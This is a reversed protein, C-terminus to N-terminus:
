KAKERRKGLTYTPPHLISCRCFSTASTAPRATRSRRSAGPAPASRGCIAAKSKCTNTAARSHGRAIAKVHAHRLRVAQVHVTSAFLPAADRRTWPAAEISLVGSGIAGEGEPEACEEEEGRRPAPIVVQREGAHEEVVLGCRGRVSRGVRSWVTCRARRPRAAGIIISRRRGCCPRRASNWYEERKRWGECGEGSAGQPDSRRRQAARVLRTLSFPLLKVSAVVNAGLTVLHRQM